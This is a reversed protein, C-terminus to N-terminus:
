MGIGAASPALCAAVFTSRLADTPKIAPTAKVALANTYHQQLITVAQASRPDSPTLAMITAVFDAIAADPATSVWSKAGAPLTNPKPDIVMNAVEECINELGARYFLSPQNPLVPITAGRGYGDSPLGGAIQSITSTPTTVDLGCIDVLGLRDDLAACLHDRRSVAVVESADTTATPAANTTIPSSFLAVVLANWSLNSSTFLTVLRQFEPDTTLCPGSNAYYCLKQVWAQPMLPHTALISAFDDITAVNKIVGQFAFLGTQAIVTPDKQTYYAYSWTSSLIARTPDLTQHCAFCPTGPAAHAADLGPTTTPTTPDNEDVPQGLAVILAQNVTVRMQNSSNTSWNGFFAPTSFFGPRPTNIVLESASRLTPIDYFTTIAEGTKPPRITVMKWASEGFDDTTFQLGNKGGRQGCNVQQGMYTTPHNDVGGYLIWHLTYSSPAYVIPDINSCWTNPTYMLGAVDPNYWHMYDTTNTVDASDAPTIASFGATGQYINTAKPYLTKFQDTSKADDDMHYTDFFAYLEMLPPTMMVRKTTMADSLPKGEKILELVTRAFSEQINQVLLPVGVGNGIGNPFMDIFSAATLQTQQFALEFFVQMKENYEPLAMWGQILTALADPNATVQMVEADTPPLGVLLNKVKAVYVSPPDAQFPPPAADPTGGGGSSMSTGTSASSGGTGMEAPHSSCNTMVTAGTLLALASVVSFSKLAM